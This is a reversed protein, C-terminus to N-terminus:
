TCNASSISPPPSLSLRRTRSIHLFYMLGWPGTRAVSWTFTLLPRQLSTVFHLSSNANRLSCTKGFVSFIILKFLSLITFFSSFLSPPLQSRHIHGPIPFVLFLNTEKVYILSTQMNRSWPIVKIVFKFTQCTNIVKKRELFFPLFFSLFFLFFFILVRTYLFIIASVSLIIKKLKDRADACANRGEEKRENM